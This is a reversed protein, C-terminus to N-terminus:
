FTQPRFSHVKNLAKEVLDLVSKSLIPWFLLQFCSFLFWPFIALFALAEGTKKKEGGTKLHRYFVVWSSIISLTLHLLHIHKTQLVFTMPVIIITKLHKFPFSSNSSRRIFGPMHWIRSCIIDLVRPTYFSNSKELRTQVPSNLTGLICIQFWDCFSSEILPQKCHYFPKLTQHVPQLGPNIAILQAM